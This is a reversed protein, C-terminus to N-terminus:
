LKVTSTAKIEFSIDKCYGAKVYLEITMAYLQCDGVFDNFYLKSLSNFMAEIESPVGYMCVLENAASKLIKTAFM